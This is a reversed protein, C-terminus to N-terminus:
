RAVRTVLRGIQPSRIEVRDGPRLPGVGAPTGTSIVDGPELTMIGSVFSVLAPVDFILQRTNSKQRRKGNVWAEIGIARPSLGPVIWPGLPAFGDFGKARTWQGDSRQLDRATVDNMLTYGLVHDLARARPVARARRGIVVAIEAEHDVQKSRRPLRLVENPGLVASPPKMFILPEPPPAKGFEKAHDAYNVGVAVIKSPTVPALLRVRALPWEVGTGEYPGFPDPVIEEVRPGRVRGWRPGDGADFRCLPLDRTM